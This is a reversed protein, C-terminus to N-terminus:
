RILNDTSSLRDVRSSAEAEVELMIEFVDKGDPNVTPQEFIKRALKLDQWFDESGNKKM